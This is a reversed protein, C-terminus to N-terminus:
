VGWQTPPAEQSEIFDELLVHQERRELEERAIAIADEVRVGSNVIQAALANVQIPDVQNDTITQVPQSSANSDSESDNQCKKKVCLKQAINFHKMECAIDIPRQGEKTLCNINANNDILLQVVDINNEKQCAIHLPTWNNNNESDVEAGKELLLRVVEVHGQDCAIMLPTHGYTHGNKDVVRRSQQVQDVDAGNDLLLRASNVHGKHCAAYLPTWGGEKIARNVDAGKELLLREVDIHGQQCAIYLPTWGGETIARDVEAGKELLLRAVNIYGKSCAIHLPTWNNNDEKDVEAGKELLLRTADVSGNHCAVWLPSRGEIDMMDIKAGKELLLRAIDVYGRNYAALLPTVGYENVWNVEAGKELLLQAANINGDVCKDFLEKGLRLSYEKKSDDFETQLNSNNELVNQIIQKLILNSTLNKGIPENTMPSRQKTEFHAEICRREYTYGDEAIVPDYCFTLSIPCRLLRLDTIVFPNMESSQTDM